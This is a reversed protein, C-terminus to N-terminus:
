IKLMFVKDGTDGETGKKSSDKVLVLVQNGEYPMM